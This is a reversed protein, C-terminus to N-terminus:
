LNWLRRRCIPRHTIRNGEEPEQQVDRLVITGFPTGIRDSSTGIILAPRRPTETLAVLNALPQWKERWRTTNWGLRSTASSIQLDLHQAVESPRIQNAILRM